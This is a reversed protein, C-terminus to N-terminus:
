TENTWNTKKLKENLYHDIQNLIELTLDQKLMKQLKNTVIMQKQMFLSATEIWIVLNQM